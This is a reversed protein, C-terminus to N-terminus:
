KATTNECPSIDVIVMQNPVEHLRQMTIEIRRWLGSRRKAEETHMSEAVKTYATVSTYYNHHNLSSM